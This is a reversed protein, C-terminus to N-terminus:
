RLRMGGGVGNPKSTGILVRIFLGVVFPSPRTLWSTGRCPVGSGVRGGVRLPDSSQWFGIYNPLREFNGRTEASLVLCFTEHYSTESARLLGGSAFGRCIGDM